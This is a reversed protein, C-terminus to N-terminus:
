AEASNHGPRVKVGIPYLPLPPPPPSLLYIFLYFIFIGNWDLYARCADAM